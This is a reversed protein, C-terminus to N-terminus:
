LTYYNRLNGNEWEKITMEANLSGIGGMESIERLVKLSKEEYVPLLYAAVGTRFSIDPHDYYVALEHLSNAARLKKAIEAMKDYNANAIRSKYMKLAESRKLGAEEFLKLLEKVDVEKKMTEM